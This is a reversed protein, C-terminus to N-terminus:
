LAILLVLARLTELPCYRVFGGFTRESGSGSEPASSHVTVTPACSVLVCPLPRTLTATRAPQGRRRVHGIEVERQLGDDLAAQVHPRALVHEDDGVGAVGLEAVRQDPGGARRAAVGDEIIRGGFGPRPM